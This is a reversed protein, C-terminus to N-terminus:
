TIANEQQRNNLWAVSTQLVTVVLPTAIESSMEWAQMQTSGQMTSLFSSLFNKSVAMFTQMEQMAKVSSEEWAKVAKNQTQAVSKIEITGINQDWELLPTAKQQKPRKNQQQAM